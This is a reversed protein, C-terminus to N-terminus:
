GNRQLLSYIKDLSEKLTSIAPLPQSVFKKIDQSFTPIKKECTYGEYGDPCECVWQNSEFLMQCTGGNKCPTFSKCLDTRGSYYLSLSGTYSSYWSCDQQYIPPPFVVSKKEYSIHMLKVYSMFYIVQYLPRNETYHVILSTSYQVPCSNGNGKIEAFMDNCTKKPICNLVKDRKTGYSGINTEGVAVTIKEMPIVTFGDTKDPYDQKTDYVVVVWSYWFYKKDLAWKIQRAIEEKNSYSHKKSIEVVDMKVYKKYNSKCYNVAEKEANVIKKMMSAYEAAKVSPDFGMLSWYVQNLFMGRYMLSNFYISYMGIDYISCKSKRTLIDLLNKSLSTGRITLYHYLSTVSGETATNEYFTTFMEALRIKKEESQAPMSSKFIENFNKWANLIRVEDQSYVSAYNHWEVDTALNSIEMSLSDLKRNVEDLDAQLQDTPSEQPIFALIINVFSFMLGLVSPLMSMGQAITKTIGTLTRTTHALGFADKVLALAAKGGELVERTKEQTFYPLARKVRTHPRSNTYNFTPDHSLASTTTWYLLTLFVLLLSARLFAM